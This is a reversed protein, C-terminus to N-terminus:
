GRAGRRLARLRPWLARKAAPARLADPDFLAQVEPDGSARRAARLLNRLLASEAGQNRQAQAGANARGGDGRTPEGREDARRDARHAGRNPAEGPARAAARDRESERAVEGADRSPAAAAPEDGALALVSYGMAQLWERQQADWLGSM